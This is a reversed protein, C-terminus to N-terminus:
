RLRHGAKRMSELTFELSERPVENVFPGILWGLGFPIERSLSLTECQVYTGEAREELSCYNNFRWLYGSGQGVPQEREAPTDARDIEAVKTSRSRVQMRTPSVPLYDVDMESNMVVTVVKKMFLQLYVTFHDGTRTLVRARRIEPRYVDPYSDYTQMLAVSSALRAGDILVTGVWHHCLADPFRIPQGSDRTLLRGIVIEGRRIRAAAKQREADPLRDIWLFGSRGAREEEMRQETLRVYRDFAQVAGPRLEAANAGASSWTLAVVISVAPVFVLRDSVIFNALWCAVVSIVNAVLYHVHGLRVLLAMLVLNGVISILGNTVNFRVLTRLGNGAASLRDSWTWRRHWFFNHVVAAEVALVTAVLYHVGGLDILMWLCALQTIWGAFGIASFRLCRVPPGPPAIGM